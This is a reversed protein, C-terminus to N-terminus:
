VADRMGHVSRVSGARLRSRTGHREEAAGRQPHEEARLKGEHCAYEFPEQTVVRRSLNVAFAWPRTWTSPDNVTVSWEVTDPAMPKFQDILRLTDASAGRYANQDKFRLINTHAM